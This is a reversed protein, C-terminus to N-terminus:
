QRSRYIQIFRSADQVMYVNNFMTYINESMQRFKSVINYLKELDSDTYRYRYNVESPGLGHLRFYTTSKTIVPLQKLPDVVHILNKFRSVIDLIKDLNQIWTGRPEWGIIFERTDITSFFEIANRYNEKTYSFSPPTQIVVVRAGLIRVAEIIKEWADFVEKTPRLFGYRDSLSKNPMFRAKRWTPSDLPHTIAQWAKLTFIFNQPAEERYKKLKDINPLDYFTEQLEVVNFLIYYRSRSTSFGCCGVYISM